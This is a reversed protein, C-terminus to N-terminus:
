STSLYQLLRAKVCGAKRERSGKSLAIQVCLLNAECQSRRKPLHARRLGLDLLKGKAYTSTEVIAGTWSLDLAYM